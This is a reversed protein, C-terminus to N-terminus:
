PLPVGVGVPIRISKDGIFGKSLGVRLYGNVLKLILSTSLQQAGPDLVFYLDVGFSSWAGPNRTFGYGVGPAFAGEVKGTSLNV